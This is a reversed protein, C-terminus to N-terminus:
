GRGGPRWTSRQTTLTRGRATGAPWTASSATRCCTCRAWGNRTATACSWAPTTPPYGILESRGPRSASTRAPAAQRPGFTLVLATATFPKSGPEALGLRGTLMANVVIRGRSLHLTLFKGRQSVRELLQGECGRLEAPTGRLVLPERIATSRLPRGSLATTFAEALVRLDPLEPVAGNNRAAVRSLM